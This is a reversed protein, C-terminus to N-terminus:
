CKILRSHQQRTHRISSRVIGRGTIPVTRKDGVTIAENCSTFDCRTKCVHSTAGSDQIWVTELNSMCNVSQNTDRLCCNFKKKESTNAQCCGIQAQYVRKDVNEAIKVYATDLYVTTEQIKERNDSFQNNENSVVVKLSEVHRKECLQNNSADSGIM